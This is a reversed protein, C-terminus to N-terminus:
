YEVIFEARASSFCSFEGPNLSPWRGRGIMIHEKRMTPPGKISNTDNVLVDVPVLTKYSGLSTLAYVRAKAFADKAAALRGDNILLSRAKETLGWYIHLTVFDVPIFPRVVMTCASLSRFRAFICTDYTFKVTGDEELTTNVTTDSRSWHSLPSDPFPEGTPQLRLLKGFSEEIKAVISEVVDLSNSRGDESLRYSISISLLASNPKRTVTSNGSVGIM